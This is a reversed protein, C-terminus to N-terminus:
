PPIHRQFTTTVFACRRVSLTRSKPHAKRSLPIPNPSVPLTRFAKEVLKILEGHDVGSVLVVCDATYNTKIYLVLDEPKISFINKPGLIRRGLPQGARHLDYVTNRPAVQITLAYRPLHHVSISM